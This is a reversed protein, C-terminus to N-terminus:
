NRPKMTGKCASTTRTNIKMMSLSPHIYEFRARLYTAAGILEKIDKKVNNTRNYWLQCEIYRELALLGESDWEQPLCHEQIFEQIEYLTYVQGRYSKEDKYRMAPFIDGYTFIM